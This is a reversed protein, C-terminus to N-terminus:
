EKQRGVILRFMLIGLLGGALDLLVDQYMGSRSDMFYQNLEDVSAVLGVYALSFPIEKKWMLAWLARITLFGLVGYVGLHAGKRFFFHLFRFPERYTILSDGYYFEVKPLAEALQEEELWSEM